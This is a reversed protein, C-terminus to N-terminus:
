GGGRRRRKRREEYAKLLRLLRLIEAFGAGMGLFLGVVTLWPTTGLRRDLYSGGFYGILIGAVFMPAIGIALSQIRLRELDLRKM